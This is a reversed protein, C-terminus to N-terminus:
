PFRCTRPVEQEVSYSALDDRRTRHREPLYPKLLKQARPGLFVVREHEHHENKHRGPWYEWIASSTDIDCPRMEVVDQPRGGCLRQLLIMTRVAPPVLPLVHQVHDEEICKIHAKERATTRNKRLGKVRMLRAHVRAPLLEEAVAWAFMRKIRAIQKNIFRRSLGHCLLRVEERIEGTIEDQVKTKRTVPHDIMAQRVAKLALPSFDKALTPAYLQRVFRL